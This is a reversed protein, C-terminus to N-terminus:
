CTIVLRIVPTPWNLCVERSSNPPKAPPWGQPNRSDEMASTRERVGYRGGKDPYSKRQEREGDRALIALWGSGEHDWGERGERKGVGVRWRWNVWSIEDIKGEKIFTPRVLTRHFRQATKNCKKLLLINFM